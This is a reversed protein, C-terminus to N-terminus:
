PHGSLLVAASRHFYAQGDRDWKRHDNDRGIPRFGFSISTVKTPPRVRVSIEQSGCRRGTEEIIPRYINKFLKNTSTFLLIGTSRYSPQSNGVTFFLDLEEFGRAMVGFDTHVLDFIHGM